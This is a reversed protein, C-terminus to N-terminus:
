NNQFRYIKTIHKIFTHESYTYKMMNCMTCSPVCNDLTYGKKSDIRDIGFGTDGCYVCDRDCMDEFQEVTLDFAVKKANARKLYSLYRPPLSTDYKARPKGKDARQKVVPKEVPEPLTCDTNVPVDLVTTTLVRRNKYSVPKRNIM